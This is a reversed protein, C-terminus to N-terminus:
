SEIPTRGGDTEYDKGDSMGRWANVVSVTRSGRFKPPPRPLLPSARSRFDCAISLIPHAHDCTALRKASCPELPRRSLPLHQLTPPSLANGLNPDLTRIGEGAGTDSVPRGPTSRRKVARFGFKPEIGGSEVCAKALLNALRLFDLFWPAEHEPHELMQRLRHPRHRPLIGFAALACERM